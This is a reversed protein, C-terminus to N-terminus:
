LAITQISRDNMRDPYSNIALLDLEKKEKKNKRRRKKKKEKRRKRLRASWVVVSFLCPIYNRKLNNGSVGSM